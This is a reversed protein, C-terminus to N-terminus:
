ALAEAAAKRPNWRTAPDGQTMSSPESFIM